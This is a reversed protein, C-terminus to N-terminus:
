KLFPLDKTSGLEVEPSSLSMRGDIKKTPFKIKYLKQKLCKETCDTNKAVNLWLTLWSEWELVGYYKLFQLRPLGTAGSRPSISM